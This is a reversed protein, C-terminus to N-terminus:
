NYYSQRRQDRKLIRNFTRRFHKNSLAYLFPNITSNVYGLWITATVIRESVCSGCFAVVMYLIFYPLFCCTFGFVIAFLQRFAKEQQNWVTSQKIKHNSSLHNLYSNSRPLISSTTSCRKINYSSLTAQKRSTCSSISSTSMRHTTHYQEVSANITIASAGTTCCHCLSVINMTTPHPNPRITETFSCRRCISTTRQRRTYSYSEHLHHSPSPDFSDNSFLRCSHDDHTHKFCREDVNLRHHSISRAPRLPVNVNPSLSTRSHERTLWSLEEHACANPDIFSYARKMSSPRGDGVQIPMSPRAKREKFNIRLTSQNTPHMAASRPSLTSMIMSDNENLNVTTSCCARDSDCVNVSIPIHSHRRISPLRSHSISETLKTSHRQLLVNKYRRKIEYYIRANLSILVLLPLYFNIIATSVKFM